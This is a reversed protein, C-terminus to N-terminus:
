IRAKHSEDDYVMIMDDYFYAFLHLKEFHNVYM